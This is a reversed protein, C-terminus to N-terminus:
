SRGRHRPWGVRHPCSPIICVSPESSTMPSLRLAGLISRRIAIQALQRRGTCYCSIEFPPLGEPIPNWRQCMPRRHHWRDLAGAPTPYSRRCRYTGWPDHARHKHTPPHLVEWSRRPATPADKEIQCIGSHSSLHNVSTLRYNVNGSSHDRKYIRSPQRVWFNEGSPSM